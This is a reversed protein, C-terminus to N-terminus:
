SSSASSLLSSPTERFDHAERIDKMLSEINKIRIKDHNILPQFRYLLILGMVLVIFLIIGIVGFEWFSNIRVQQQKPTITSYGPKRVVTNDDTTSALKIETPMQPSHTEVIVIENSNDQITPITATTTVVVSTTTTTLAPLSVPMTMTQPKMLHQWSQSLQRLSTTLFTQQVPPGLLTVWTNESRMQYILDMLESPSALWENQSSSRKERCVQQWHQLNVAPFLYGLIHVFHQAAAREEPFFGSYSFAILSLGMWTSVYWKKMESETDSLFALGTARCYTEDRVLAHKERAIETRVHLTWMFWDVEANKLLLHSELQKIQSLFHHGCLRCPLLWALSTFLNIGTSASLKFRTLQHALGHVMPWVYPAWLDIPLANSAM